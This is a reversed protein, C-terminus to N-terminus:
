ALDDMYGWVFEYQTGSDKMWVDPNAKCHYFRMDMHTDTFFEHCRAGSTTCLGYLLAKVVIILLCGQCDGFKPGAIIFLKEKTFNMLYVNGVDTADVDLGNLEGLFMDLGRLSRLTVVRSYISDEPPVTMHKGAVLPSKHCLDHKVDFVFRLGSTNIIAHLSQVEEWITFPTMNM